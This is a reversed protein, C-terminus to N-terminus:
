PDLKYTAEWVGQSLVRRGKGLFGVSSDAKPMRGYRNENTGFCFFCRHTDGHTHSNCVFSNVCEGRQLRVVDDCVADLSQGHRELSRLVCSGRVLVMPM